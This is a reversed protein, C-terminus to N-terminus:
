EDFFGVKTGQAPHTIAGSMGTEYGHQNTVHGHLQNWLMGSQGLDNREFEWFIDKKADRIEAAQM